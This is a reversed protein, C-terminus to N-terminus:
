GGRLCARHGTMRSVRPQMPKERNEELNCKDYMSIDSFSCAFPSCKLHQGARANPSAACNAGQHANTLVTILGYLFDASRKGITIDREHGKPAVMKLFQWALHAAIPPASIFHKPLPYPSGRRSLFGKSM